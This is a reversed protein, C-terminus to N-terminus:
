TVKVIVMTMDDNQEASGRFKTLADWINKIIEESKNQSSNKLINSLNEEGFLESIENMAETIGDSFFAFIQGPKLQIEEELLTREFISGKELGIGIGQTRYSHIIGNELTLVPMHGARCFIVKNTDTDFFALTLTIFSNRELSEYLRRNLEVLIERPSKKDTCVLQILTQLKTMYLSAPLGKGSVDGVVVFIKSASVPILDYYDGGVQMAPIMEGCIDLGNIDPIKKPLLGQQIKRALLLDREMKLKEAESEYLRANEISIACQNAAVTLLDLDRGAFQSGSHKLGFLLLGVVNSKVIMPIITFIGEDILFASAEPFILSFETQEFIIRSAKLSKQEIADKLNDTTIILDEKSIGVSRVLRFKGDKKDKIVVGFHNIMLSEVFTEKMSDFINELGVLTSVENGFKLLVKQYAFQEPYFKETLFNQFRDKTSQFVLAFIIFVVGAIIGQFNTGIALSISQGLIYILLFYLAALTITATGYFIANKVVVSVDLLQYKFISYAFAIPVLIILIIPTYFEPSNFISDSIIPAIQSTYLVAAVAIILAILIILVPKKEEKTKLKSYNILLSIIATIEIANSFYGFYGLYIRLNNNEGTSIKGLLIFQILSIFNIVVFIGPIIFFLSKIWRKEFLKITFPFTWFFALFIFPFFSIGFSLTFALFSFAFFNNQFSGPSFDFPVFVFTSSLVLTVGMAYFLKQVRGEPKALLVISGILMFMLAFLVNAVNGINVLKKVLVKTHFIKGNKLVTYNAYHGAPISNLIAQASFVDTFKKNNIALFQDGDRIGANWAVGNIKVLEFVIIPKGLSDQKPQWLCEDNSSVRVFFVFYLEIIATL